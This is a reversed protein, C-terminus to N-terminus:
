LTLFVHRWYLVWVPLFVAALEVLMRVVPAAGGLALAVDGGILFDSLVRLPVTSILIVALLSNRGLVRLPLAGRACVAAHEGGMLGAFAFLSVGIAALAFAPTAMHPNSPQVQHLLVSVNVCVLGAVALGFTRPHARERQQLLFTGATLGGLLMAATPITTLLGHPDWGGFFKIGPLLRGDILTALNSDFGYRGEATGPVPCWALLGGYAALLAVCLPLLARWTRACAAAIGGIVVCGALQPLPGTWTLRLEFAFGVNDSVFGVAYLGAARWLSRKVFGIRTGGNRARRAFSLALSAGAAFLFAPVCLDALT